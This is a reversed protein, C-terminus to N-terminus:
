QSKQQMSWAIKFLFLYYEVVFETNKNTQRQNIEYLTWYTKSM